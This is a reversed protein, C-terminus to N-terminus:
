GGSMGGGFWYKGQHGFQFGAQGSESILNGPRSRNLNFSGSVILRRHYYITGLSGILGGGGGPMFFDSFGTSIFLGPASPVGVFLTGDFRVKPYLVASRDPAGSAGVIAWVKKSLTVYSYAGYNQESGQARTQSSFTLFPSFKKSGTYGLKIDLGKWDGYGNDLEDYFGGIEAYFRKEPAPAAPPPVSTADSPAGPSTSSGPPAQAMVSVVGALLLCNTRLLSRYFAQSLDVWDEVSLPM